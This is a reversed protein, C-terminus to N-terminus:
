AGVGRLTSWKLRGDLALANVTTCVVVPGERSLLKATEQVVSEGVLVHGRHGVQYGAQKLHKAITEAHHDEGEASVVFVPIDTM